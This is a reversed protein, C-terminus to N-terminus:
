EVPEELTPKQLGIDSAAGQLLLVLQESAARLRAPDISKLDGRKVLIQTQELQQDVAQALGPDATALATAFIVRYAMEIGDVNNRIDDISTGSLRSEGGDVKSDGIEYALRAIGNLLRQPTLSVVRITDGLVVFSKALADTEALADTSKAGFLKAEIAHFGTVADPWADIERDLDPVFGSTFVESREWGVRAAIWAAKAGDLDGAILCERLKRVSASAQGINEVLTVRYGEAADGLATAAVPVVGITLAIGTMCVTWWWRLRPLTTM